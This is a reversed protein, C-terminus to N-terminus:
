SVVGGVTEIVAGEAPAVTRPVATVTEAVAESLTPTAPTWNRTSPAVRPLSSVVDGYETVQFVVVVALPAWTSAARALSAPPLEVTAAFTLTVTSLWGGVPLTTMLPPAAAVLLRVAVRVRAALSASLPTVWIRKEFM